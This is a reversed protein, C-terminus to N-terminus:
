MIKDGYTEIIERVMGKMGTQRPTGQKDVQSNKGRNPRGGQSWLEDESHAKPVEASVKLSVPSLKLRIKAYNLAWAAIKDM